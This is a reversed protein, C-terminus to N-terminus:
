DDEPHLHGREPIFRSPHMTDPGAALRQWELPGLIGNPRVGPSVRAQFARVAKDTSTGYHGDIPKGPDFGFDNLSWEATWVTQGHARVDRPHPIDSMAARFLSLWLHPRIRDVVPPKYAPPNTLLSLHVHNVHPDTTGHYGLSVNPPQGTTSRILRNFIEYHVGLRVRNSWVYEYIWQGVNLRIPGPHAVTGDAYDMFDVADGTLHDESGGAAWVFYIPYGAARAAKVVEYAVQKTHTKVNGLETHVGPMNPDTM